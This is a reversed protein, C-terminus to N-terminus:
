VSRSMLRSRARSALSIARFAHLKIRDRHPSTGYPTPDVGLRRLQHNLMYVMERRDAARSRFTVSFSVSIEDDNEVFHPANIPVHLADGPALHIRQGREALEPELVMKRNEQSYHREIEQEPIVERDARDFITFTKGGRVQFLFNHEPDMHFPVTSRPSTVFIFGERRYMRPFRPEILPQLRDLIADILDRYEPVKEVQKLGLWTKCEHIRALTQEASLGHHPKRGDVLSTPVDGANLEVNEEPLRRALDALREFSFLPHQALDHGILFPRREYHDTFDAPKYTLAPPRPHM